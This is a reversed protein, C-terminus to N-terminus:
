TNHPYFMLFYTFSTSFDCTSVKFASSQIWSVQPINLSSSPLRSATSGPVIFYPRNSSTEGSVFIIQLEVFVNYISLNHWFVMDAYLCTYLNSFLGQQITARNLLSVHTTSRMSPPPPHRHPCSSNWLTWATWWAAMSGVTESVTGACM